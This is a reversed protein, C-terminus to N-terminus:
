LNCIGSDQGKLLYIPPEIGVELTLDVGLEEFPYLTITPHGYDWQTFPHQEARQNIRGPTNITKVM